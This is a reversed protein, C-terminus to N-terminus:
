GEFQNFYSRTYGGFYAGNAREGKKELEVGNIIFTFNRGLDSYLNYAEEATECTMKIATNKLEIKM